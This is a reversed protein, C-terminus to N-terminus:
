HNVILKGQKIQQNAKVSYIYIGASWHSADVQYSQGSVVSFRDVLSGMTNYIEVLAHSEAGTNVMFNTFGNFPNPYTQVSLDSKEISEIALFRDITNLATNTRIPENFDFYIDVFNELQTGDAQNLVPNISFNVFGISGEPDSTSDPLMINSFTWRIVRSEADVIISYPHSSANMQFSELVLETSVTDILVVNVAPASGTNQFRITYSLGTNPLILGQEGIGQPIVQKDNPDWSGVVIQNLYAINNAPNSDELPMVTVVNQVPTGLVLSVPAMANMYIITCAGAGLNVFNWTATRSGLDITSPAPNFVSPGSVTIQADWVLTFSGSQPTLGNNCYKLSNMVPFGPTVTSIQHIHASLDTFNPDAYLGFDNFPYTGGMVATLNYTHPSVPVSITYGNGPNLLSVIVNGPFVNVWYQGLSNTITTFSGVTVLKNAAPAEGIDFIGNNNADYFVLGSVTAQQNQFGFNFASFDDGANLTFNYSGQTPTTMM